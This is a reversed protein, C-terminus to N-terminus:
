TAEAAEAGCAAGERMVDALAFTGNAAGAVTMGPPPEAPVFAAIAESWRPRAGLHSTLAVAPNWGGSVALLDVAIETTRGDGDRVTISRLARSGRTAVVQAGLMIRGSQGALAPAVERRADIIAAVEVGCAALEAATRWGDDTTTFIAARHGAAVGFRN